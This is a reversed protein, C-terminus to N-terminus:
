VVSLLTEKQEVRDGPKVRIRAVNGARPSRLENQMKMSELVLLVDGKQVPQGVQVPVSVILGPMPAKLHFEDSKQAAAGLATRLRMEREDEVLVSFMRGRFMVQWADEDSYVLADYSQGDVVLSYVPQNGVQIFDVQYVVGDVVVRHEDLIEVEYEKGHITAIYKM